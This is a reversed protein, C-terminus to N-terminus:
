LANTICFQSLSSVEKVDDTFKEAAFSKEEELSVKKEESSRKANKKRIRELQDEMWEGARHAHARFQDLTIRKHHHEDGSFIKLLDAAHKRSTEKDEGDIKRLYFKLEKVDVKGSRNKDIMNFLVGIAANEAASLDPSSRGSKTPSNKRRSSSSSSSTAKTSAKAVAPSAGTKRLRRWDKFAALQQEVWSVASDGLATVGAQFEERSVVKDDNTDFTSLFNATLVRHDSKATVKKFFHRVEKTDVKGDRNRDFNDFLVNVQKSFNKPVAGDKSGGGIKAGHRKCLKIAEHIHSMADDNHMIQIADAAQLLHQELFGFGSASKRCARFYKHIKKKTKQPNANTAARPSPSRRDEVPTNALPNSLGGNFRRKKAALHPLTWANSEPSLASKNKVLELERDTLFEAVVTNLLQLDQLRRGIDTNLASVEAKHAEVLERAEAKAADVRAQLGLRIEEFHNQFDKADGALRELQEQMRRKKKDMQRRSAEMKAQKKKREKLRFQAKRMKAQQRAIIVSPDIELANDGKELVNETALGIVKMQLAKFKNELDKREKEEEERRTDAAEMALGMANREKEASQGIVRTAALDEDTPGIRVKRIVKQERVVERIVHKVVEVERIEPELQVSNKRQLKPANARRIKAEERQQEVIRARKKAELRQQLLTRSQAQQHQTQAFTSARMQSRDRKLRLLLRQAEDNLDRLMIDMRGEKLSAQSHLSNARTAFRMTALSAAYHSSAQSINALVSLLEHGLLPTKLLTTLRSQAFHAQLM